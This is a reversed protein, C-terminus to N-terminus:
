LLSFINLIVVAYTYFTINNGGDLGSVFRGLLMIINAFNGLILVSINFDIISLNINNKGKENFLPRVYMVTLSLVGILRSVVVGLISTFSAIIKFM